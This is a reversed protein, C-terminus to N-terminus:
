WPFEELLESLWMIREAPSLSVSKTLDYRREYEHVDSERHLLSGGAM